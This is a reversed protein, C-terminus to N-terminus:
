LPDSETNLKDLGENRSSTAYPVLFRLSDVPSFISIGLTTRVTM